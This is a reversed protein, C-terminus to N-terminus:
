NMTMMLADNDSCWWSHMVTLADHYTCWHLPYHIGTRSNAAAHLCRMWACGICIIASSQDILVCLVAKQAMKLYTSCNKASVPNERGIRLDGWEFQINSFTLNSAEIWNWNKEMWNFGDFDVFSIKPGNQLLIPWKQDIDPGGPGFRIGGLGFNLNCCTMNYAGFWNWSKGM